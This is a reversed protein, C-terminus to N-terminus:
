QQRGREHLSMADMVPGTRGVGDHVEADAVRRRQARRQPGARRAPVLTSPQRHPPVRPRGPGVDLLARTLRYARGYTLAVADEAIADPASGSIVRIALYDDQRDVVRHIALVDDEARGAPRLQGRGSIPILDRELSVAIVLPIRAASEM